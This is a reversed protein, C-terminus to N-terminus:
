KICENDRVRLAEYLERNKEKLIDLTMPPIRVRMAEDIRRRVRVSFERRSPDLRRFKACKDAWNMVVNHIENRDTMSRCVVLYPIIILNAAHKRYDVIPTQILKEIWDITRIQTTNQTSNFHRKKQMRLGKLKEDVIEQVLYAHFDDIMFKKTPRARVGNWRQILKVKAREWSYKTNASNPIRLMCSKFSPNHNKDSKGNSLKKESYRMFKESPNEFYKFDDLDEYLPIYNADLPLYIHYGGGTFLVTPIAGNLHEHINKLTDNLIANLQELKQHQEPKLDLDVFLLSVKPKYTTPLLSKEVLEDYRPYANIKCDQRLAGEYYSIVTSKDYVTKQSGKTLATSITRPWLPENENSFHGLLLELGEWFEQWEEERAPGIPQKERQPMTEQTM